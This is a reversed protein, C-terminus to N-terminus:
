YVNMASISVNVQPSWVYVCVFGGLFLLLLFCVFLFGVCVCACQHMCLCLYVYPM